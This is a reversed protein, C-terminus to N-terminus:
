NILETTGSSGGIRNGLFQSRVDVCQECRDVGAHGALGVILGLEALCGTV